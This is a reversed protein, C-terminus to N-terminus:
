HVALVLLSDVDAFVEMMFTWKWNEVEEKFMRQISAVGINGYKHSTMDRDATDEDTLNNTTTKTDAITGTHLTTDSLNNTVTGTSQVTGTQALASTGTEEVTVDRSDTGSLTDTTTLNNTKTGSRSLTGGYSITATDMGEHSTIIMHSEGGEITGADTHTLDDTRLENLADTRQSQLNDTTVVTDTGTETKTETTDSTGSDTASPVANTSNFGFLNDAGTTDNDTVTQTQLNKTDQVNRTGTNSTTQTGTNGTSVTGSDTKTLNRTETSTMTDSKRESTGPRNVTTDVMDRTETETSQVTGTDQKTDIKGYTTADDTTTTLNKTTTDTKNFTDTNDDRVTGTRTTADSTNLTQNDAVQVTGTKTGTSQIGETVEEHVDYNHLPDYEEMYLQWLKEWKRKYTAWVAGTVKILDANSVQETNKDIFNDLLPATYKTGSHGGQYSIDLLLEEGDYDNRWPVTYNKTLTAMVGDGTLWEPVVDNLTKRKKKMELM